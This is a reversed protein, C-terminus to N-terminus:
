TQNVVLTMGLPFFDLTGRGGWMNWSDPAITHAILHILQDPKALSPQEGLPVVLDAVQYVRQEIEERPKLSDENIIIGIYGGAHVPRASLLAATLLAAASWVFRPSM